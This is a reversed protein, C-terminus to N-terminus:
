SEQGDTPFAKSARWMTRATLILLLCVAPIVGLVLCGLGHVVEIAADARLGKRASSALGQLVGSASVVPFILLIGVGIMHVVAGRRLDQRVAVPARNVKTTIM